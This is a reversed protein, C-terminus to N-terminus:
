HSRRQDRRKLEELLDVIRSPLRQDPPSARRLNEAIGRCVALSTKRDIELDSTRRSM